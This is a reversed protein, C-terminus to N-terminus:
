QKKSTLYSLFKPDLMYAEPLNLKKNFEQELFNLNQHLPLEILNFLDKIFDVHTLLSLNAAGKM